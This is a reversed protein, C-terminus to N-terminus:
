QGQTSNLIAMAKTVFENAISEAQMTVTAEGEVLVCLALTANEHPSFGLFWSHMEDSDESHVTAMVGTTEAEEANSNKGRREERKGSRRMANRVFAIHKRSLGVDRLDIGNNLPGSEHYRPRKSVGHNGLVAAVLVIELPSVGVSRRQDLWSGKVTNEDRHPLRASECLSRGDIGFTRTITTIADDGIGDALDERRSEVGDITPSSMGVGAALSLLLHDLDGPAYLKEVRNVLKGRPDDVWRKYEQFTIPRQFQNPDFGPFSAAALIDGTGPAVVVIAGEGESPFVDCALRQLRLDITTKLDQGQRLSRECQEELGSVGNREGTRRVMGTLHGAVRGAPYFRVGEHLVALVEGSRDLIRGREPEGRGTVVSLSVFFTLLLSRKM